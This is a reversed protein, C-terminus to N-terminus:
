RWMHEELGVIHELMEKLLARIIRELQELQRRESNQDLWLLV